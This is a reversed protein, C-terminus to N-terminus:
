LDSCADLSGCGDKDIADMVVSKDNGLDGARAPSFKKGSGIASHELLSPTFLCETMM